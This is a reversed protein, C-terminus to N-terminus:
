TESPPAPVTPVPDTAAPLDDTPIPTPDEPVAPVPKTAVPPDDTPIPTPDEPVGPVSASVSQVPAIIPVAEFSSIEQVEEKDEGEAEGEEVENDSATLKVDPYPLPTNERLLLDSSVPTGVKKLAAKWGDRFSRNYVLELQDKVEDLISQEGEAKGERKGNIRAQEISHICQSELLEVKAKLQAVEAEAKERQDSESALKEEADKMKNITQHLQKEVDGYNKAATAMVDSVIKEHKAVKDKIAQHLGSIRAEAAHVGQAAKFCFMFLNTPKFSFFLYFGLKLILSLIPSFALRVMVLGRSINRFMKSSSMNEWVQSDGPLCSARTLAQAVRASFEVDTTEFVTYATTVLDGAVAMKPAWIEPGSSYGPLESQETAARARKPRRVLEGVLETSEEVIRPLIDQETTAASTLEAGENQERSSPTEYIIRKSRRPQAAPTAKEKGKSSSAGKQKKGLIKFVDIPPAMESVEGSPIFSLHETVQATPAPQAVYLVTPEVPTEQSRPVTPGELFNGVLPQYGLLLSAARPNGFRDVFINSNLVKQIDELNAATAPVNM